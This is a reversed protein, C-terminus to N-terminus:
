ATALVSPARGGRRRKDGSWDTPASGEKMRAALAAAMRARTLLDRESEELVDAVAAAVWDPITRQAMSWRHLTAPSLKKGRAAGFRAALPTQWREGFLLEGVYRLFGPTLLDAAGSTTTDEAPPLNVRYTKKAAM